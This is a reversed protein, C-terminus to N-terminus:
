SALGHVKRCAEENRRRREQEERPKAEFRRRIEDLTHLRRMMDVDFRYLQGRERLAIDRWTVVGPANAKVYELAEQCVDTGAIPQLMELMAKCEEGEAYLQHRKRQGGLLTVSAGLLVILVPQLGVSFLTTAVLLGALVMISVLEIGSCRGRLSKARSATEKVQSVKASVLEATVHQALLADLQGRKAAAPLAYKLIEDKTM